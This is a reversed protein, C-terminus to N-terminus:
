RSLASQGPPIYGKAKSRAGHFFTASCPADGNCVFLTRATARFNPHYRPLM